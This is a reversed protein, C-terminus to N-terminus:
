PAPPQHYELRQIYQALLRADCAHDNTCDAYLPIHERCLRVAWAKNAEHGGQAKWGFHAKLSVPDVMRVPVGRLLATAMCAGAVQHLRAFIAPDQGKPMFFFQREMAMCITREQGVLALVRDLYHALAQVAERVATGASTQKVAGLDACVPPFRLTCGLGLNRAGPDCGM